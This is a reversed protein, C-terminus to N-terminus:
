RAVMNTLICTGLTVFWAGGFITALIKFTKSQSKNIFLLLTSTAASSLLYFYGLWLNEDAMIFSNRRTGVKIVGTTYGIYAYNLCAIIITAGVMRLLVLKRGEIKSAGEM